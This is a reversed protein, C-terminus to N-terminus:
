SAHSPVMVFALDHSKARLSPIALLGLLARAKFFEIFWPKGLLSLSPVMLPICATNQKLRVKRSVRCAPYPKRKFM